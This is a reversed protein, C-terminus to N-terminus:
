RDTQSCSRAARGIGVTITVHPDGYSSRPAILAQDDIKVARREAQPVIPSLNDVRTVRGPGRSCPKGQALDAGRLWMM